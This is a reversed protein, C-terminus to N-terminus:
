STKKAVREARCDSKLIKEAHVNDEDKTITFGRTELLHTMVGNSYVIEAYVRKVGKNKAIELVYDTLKNGLGRNQWADAVLIAFEASENYPDAIFRVVGAMKEKGGENVVAVIAMERDYDIQTYRIVLEHTIDKLPQFFRLRSTRESLGALMESEMPEDEPRIPRLIVKTGNTMTFDTEYEKPYPSIVMHSYPKPSKGFLSEDLVIKADLVVGGEEDVAFPNIDVEKIEPFDMVLYAFKYLLFQIASIDVGKMGRYGKLLKFIKTDEIIRMALAMNLPPLGVNTDNFVEVAVGGMGFVIVPGFIPDKKSGILLEYKKHQMKEILVGEIRANPMKSKVSALIDNFANKADIASGVNLKVGGVDTKHMIDPSVIKMAVPFGIDAADEEAESDTKAVFNRNIPIGYNALIMKSENETLVYRGAKMAEVILKKNEKTKPVFKSPISAPTEYLLELNKSYQYMAMFCKEADEPTRYVPVNGKELLERGERVADEGMWSALMTKSRPLTVIEKAVGTSDTVGQPTLIVLTADVGEDGICLSVADKYRKPPADGLVDIPNSGSWAPPLCENLKKITEESLTALQGNNTLLYDTAIVGPGGANTVIALKNGHPLRQMSLTKANDFLEGIENVRIVGARKFAADFVRDDGALSGTHSLAAKAGGLTKGAKLVIIPKMRSFARAASLFRRANTLSEMYILISNTEPDTGFYDILDDFGIDAMEGISVFHSFGVNQKIAWDLVSTCLAGSQSIFAIKGPLPMKGAFSANLHLSPKIFGLCNPGMIRIDYKKANELIQDYLKKGEAGVEKFGASVIVIGSVGVKGCDEVLGPVTAAPTAIIVLDIKDPISSVSPYCKVGQASTRKMNVPYIIGEFGSGILNSFIQYGVSKKESSAGIVAVTKPNFFVDLKGMVM